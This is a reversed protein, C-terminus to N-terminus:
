RAMGQPKEEGGDNLKNKGHFWKALAGLAGILLAIPGYGFLVVYAGVAAGCIALVIENGGGEALGYLFGVLAVMGVLGSGFALMKGPSRNRVRGEGWRCAFGPGGPFAPGDRQREAWLWVDGKDDVEVHIINPCCCAPCDEAYVQRSGATLDIPLVIEEGCSDCRYSAEDRM